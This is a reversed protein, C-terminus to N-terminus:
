TLGDTATSGCTRLVNLINIQYYIYIYVCVYISEEKMHKNNLHDLKQASVQIIKFLKLIEVEFTRLVHKFM